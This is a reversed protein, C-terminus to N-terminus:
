LFPHQFQYIIRGELQNRTKYSKKTSKCSRPWRGQPVLNCHCPEYDQTAHLTQIIQYIPTGPHKADFINARRALETSLSKNREVAHWIERVTAEDQEDFQSFRPEDLIAPRVQTKAVKQKTSM